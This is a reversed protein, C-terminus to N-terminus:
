HTLGCVKSFALARPQVRYEVRFMNQNGFKFIEQELIEWREFDVDGEFRLRELAGWAWVRCSMGHISDFVKDEAEIYEQIRLREAPVVDAIRM